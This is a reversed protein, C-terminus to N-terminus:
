SPFKTMVMFPFDTDITMLLLYFNFLRIYSNIYFVKMQPGRTDPKNRDRPRLKCCRGEQRGGKKRHRDWKGELVQSWWVGRVAVARWTQRGKWGGMRGFSCKVITHAGMPSPMFISEMDVLLSNLHPGDSLLVQPIPPLQHFPKHAPANFFTDPRPPELSPDWLSTNQQLWSSLVWKDPPHPTPISMAPLSFLVHWFDPLWCYNLPVLLLKFESGFSFVWIFDKVQDHTRTIGLALLALHGEQSRSPTGAQQSRLSPSPPPHPPLSTWKRPRTRDSSNARQVMLPLSHSQEPSLHTWM